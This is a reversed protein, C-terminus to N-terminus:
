DYTCNMNEVSGQDRPVCPRGTVSLNNSNNNRLLQLILKTTFEKGNDTHFIYPYGIFGFLKELKHAVFSVRKRPICVVYVLGTAHDKVTIIWWMLVGYPNKKQLKHVHILNVQFRERFKNSRIAPKRSGKQPAIVPNHLM